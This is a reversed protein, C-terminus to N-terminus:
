KTKALREARLANLPARWSGFLAEEVHSWLQEDREAFPDGMPAEKKARVFTYVGVAGVILLIDLGGFM